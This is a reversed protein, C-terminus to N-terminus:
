LRCPTLVASGFGNYTAKQSHVLDISCCMGPSMESLKGSIVPYHIFFTNGNELLYNNLILTFIKDTESTMYRSTLGLKKILLLLLLLIYM